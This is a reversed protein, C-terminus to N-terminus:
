VKMDGHSVDERFAACDAFVGKLRREAEPDEAEAEDDSPM